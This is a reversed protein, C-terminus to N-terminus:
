LVVIALEVFFSKLLLEMLRMKFVEKDGAMEVKNLNFVKKNPEKYCAVKELDTILFEYTNIQPLAKAITDTIPKLCNREEDNLKRGM